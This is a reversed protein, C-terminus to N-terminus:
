SSFAGSAVYISSRVSRLANHLENCFGGDTTLRAEMAQESSAHRTCTGCLFLVSASLSSVLV